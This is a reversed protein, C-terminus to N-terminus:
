FTKRIITLKTWFCRNKPVGLCNEISFIGTKLTNQVIGNLQM